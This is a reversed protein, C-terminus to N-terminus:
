EGTDSSCLREILERSQARLEACATNGNREDFLAALGDATREMWDEWDSISAIGLDPDPELAPMPLNRRRLVELVASGVECTQLMSLDNSAFVQPISVELLSGAGEVNGACLMFAMHNARTGAFQAGELTQEVSWMHINLAEDLRGEAALAFQLRAFCNAPEENCAQEGELLPGAAAIAEPGRHQNIWYRMRHATACAECDSGDDVPAAEWAEFLRTAEEVRRMTWNVIMRLELSGRSGWGADRFRRELDQLGREITEADYDVHRPLEEIIWKYIFLVRKIDYQEPNRDCRSLCWEMAPIAMEIQGLFGCAMLLHERFAFGAEEDNQLLAAHIGREAVELSEPGVEMEELMLRLKKLDVKSPHPLPQPTTM